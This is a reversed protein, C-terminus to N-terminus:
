RATTRPYREELLRVESADLTRAPFGRLLFFLRATEELEEARDAAESLSSGTSILGHNRLLLVDRAAIAAGVADALQDSGPPLYPIVGLPAVRMVYYPTIIPLPATEDLDALCSLAVSFTSHLHVVAGVDPRAHYIALHFPHEKSARVDNLPRGQGDLCALAARSLARLPRGTPTIWIEEAVRVSLNGTSGFALGRVAYNNGLDCLADLTTDLTVPTM